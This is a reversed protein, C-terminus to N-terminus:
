NFALFLLRLLVHDVKAVAEVHSAFISNSLIKRAAFNHLNNICTFMAHFDRMWKGNSPPLQVNLTLPSLGKM